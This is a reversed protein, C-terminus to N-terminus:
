VSCRYNFIYFSAVDPITPPTFIHFMSVRFGCTTTLHQSSCRLPLPELQLTLPRLGVSSNGTWPDQVLFLLEWLMQWYFDTLIRDTETLHFAIPFGYTRKFGMGLSVWKCASVRVSQCFPLLEVPVLSMFLFVSNYPNLTLVLLVSVMKRRPAWRVHLWYSSPMKETSFGEGLFWIQSQIPRIFIEVHVVKTVGQSGMEDLKGPMLPSVRLEQDALIATKRPHSESNQLGLNFPPQSTNESWKKSYGSAWCPNLFHIQLLKTFVM